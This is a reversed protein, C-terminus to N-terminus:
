FDIKRPSSSQRNTSIKLTDKKFMLSGGKLNYLLLLPILVGLPCGTPNDLHNFDKFPIVIM